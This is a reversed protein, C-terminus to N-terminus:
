APPWHCDTEIVAVFFFGWVSNIYDPVSCRRGKLVGCATCCTAEEAMLDLVSLM